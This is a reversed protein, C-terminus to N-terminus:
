QISPPENTLLKRAKMRLLRASEPGSLGLLRALKEDTIAPNQQVLDLAQRLKSQRALDNATIEQEIATAYRKVTTLGVGTANVIKEHTLEEGREIAELIVQKIREQHSHTLPDLSSDLSTARQPFVITEGHTSDVKLGQFESESGVKLGQFESESGVKLELSEFKDPSLGPMPAIQAHTVETVQVQTAHVGAYGTAQAEQDSNDIVLVILVAVIVVLFSRVYSFWTKSIGLMAMATAVDSSGNLQQYSLTASILAAVLALAIGVLILPILSRKRAVRKWQRRIKRWVAFFLGDIAVAQVGAWVLTFWSLKVLGITTFVDLTGAMMGIMIMLGASRTLFEDLWNTFNTVGDNIAQGNGRLQM